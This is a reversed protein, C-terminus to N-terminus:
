NADGGRSGLVAPGILTFRPRKQAVRIKRQGRMLREEARIRIVTGALYAAVAATVRLPTTLALGSAVLLPLMALYIPHRVFAYPGSTVLRHGAIIM